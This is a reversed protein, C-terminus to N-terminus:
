KELVAVPNFVGITPKSIGFVNALVLLQKTVHNCSHKIYLSLNVVNCAVNIHFFSKLRGSV